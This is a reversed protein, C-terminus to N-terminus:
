GPRVAHPHIRVETDFTADFQELTLQHLDLMAAEYKTRYADISSPRGPAVTATGTIIVLDGGLADSNFNLSVLPRDRINRVRVADATTFAVVDDGDLACWVPNPAPAGSAAVTTLWVVHDETIRRRAEPTLTM